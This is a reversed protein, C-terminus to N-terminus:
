VEFVGVEIDQVFPGLVRWLRGEIRATVQKVCSELVVPVEPLNCRCGEPCTLPGTLVLRVERDVVLGDSIIHGLTWLRDSSRVTAYLEKHSCLLDAVFLFLAYRRPAENRLSGFITLHLCPRSVGIDM